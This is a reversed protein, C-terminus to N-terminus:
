RVALGDVRDPYPIVSATDDPDLAIVIVPSSEVPVSTLIPSVNLIAPAPDIEVDTDPSVRVIDAALLAKPRVNTPSSLVPVRMDSPSVKFIAPADLIDVAILPSVSVM